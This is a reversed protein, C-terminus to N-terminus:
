SNTVNDSVYVKIPLEGKIQRHEVTFGERKLEKLGAELRSANIHQMAPIIGHSHEVYAATLPNIM